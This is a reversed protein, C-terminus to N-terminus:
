SPPAVVILNTGKSSTVGSLAPVGVRERVREGVRGRQRTLVCHSLLQQFALLLSRMLFRIQQCRSGTSRAGLM